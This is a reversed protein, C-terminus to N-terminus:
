ERELLYPSPLAALAAVSLTAPGYILHLADRARTCLMYMVRRMQASLCPILRELEVIFVADFEQGKVSEKNLITIGTDLINIADENKLDSKYLDVRRGPLSARLRAVLEDATRNQDVVVGISGGRTQLWRAILEATAQLSRSHLLRPKESIPPRQVEAAPLRGEHFHEAVAAVEPCNRHNEMLLVPDPLNAAAQIQELKTRRDGLAQDDDAFVTLAGAVHRSAYTFFGEPLDQGEDVILNEWSSSQKPNKALRALIAPWDYDFSSGPKKIPEEGDTQRVYDRWVFSHMTSNLHGSAVDLASALRRLMRNFTVLAVSKGADTQMRARSIALVTKGSGPPGAVFLPKNLPHELIKIQKDILEDWRPLRM